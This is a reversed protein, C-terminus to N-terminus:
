KGYVGNNYQDIYLQGNIGMSPAVVIAQYCATAEGKYEGSGQTSAWQLNTYNGYKSKCKELTLTGSNTNSSNDANNQADTVDDITLTPIEKASKDWVDSFPSTERTYGIVEGEVAKSFSLGGYEIGTTVDKCAEISKMMNDAPALDYALAGKVDSWSNEGQKIETELISGRWVLSVTGGGGKYAKCDTSALKETKHNKMYDISTRNANTPTHISPTNNDTNDNTDTNPINSNDLENDSFIKICAIHVSNWEDLSTTWTNTQFTQNLTKDKCDQLTLTSTDIPTTTNPTVVEEKKEYVEVENSLSSVLKKSINKAEVAVYYKKGKKINPITITTKVSPYLAINNTHSVGKKDSIYIKYSTANEVKNWKLTAEGNKITVSSELKPADLKTVIPTDNKVFISFEKVSKRGNIQSTVTLRFDHRYFRMDDPLDPITIHAIGSSTDNWTLGVNVSSNSPLYEWKYTFTDDSLLSVTKSADLKVKEKPKVFKPINLKIIPKAIDSSFDQKNIEFYKSGVQEREEEVGYFSPLYKFTYDAKIVGVSLIKEDFTLPFDESCRQAFTDTGHSLDGVFLNDMKILKNDLYLNLNGRIGKLYVSSVNDIDVCAKYYDQNNSPEIHIDIDLYESDISHLLSKDLNDMYSNTMNEVFSQKEFINQKAYDYNYDLTSMEKYFVRMLLDLAKELDEDNSQDFSLFVYNDIEESPLKNKAIKTLAEAFDYPYEDANLSYYLGLYKETVALAYIKRSLRFQEVSSYIDNTNTAIESAYQTFCEAISFPNGSFAMYCHSLKKEIEPDDSSTFVGKQLTKSATESLAIEKSLDKFEKWFKADNVYGTTASFAKKIRYLEKINKYGSKLLGAVSIIKMLKEANEEIGKKFKKSADVEGSIYYNISDMKTDLSSVVMQHHFYNRFRSQLTHIYDKPNRNSYGYDPIDFITHKSLFDFLKPSIQNILQHKLSNIAHNNTINSSLTIDKGTLTNYKKIFEKNAPNVENITFTTNQFQKAIEKSIQIGNNPNGDTDLTQLLLATQTPYELDFVTTLKEAKASGLKLDNIFFEVEDGDNYKYEGKKNTYGEVGSSTVYKVGEVESDIFTGTNNGEVDSAIFNGSKIDNGCGTLFMFTMLSSYVIKKNIM